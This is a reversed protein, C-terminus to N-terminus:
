ADEISVLKLPAVDHNFWAPGTVMFTASGDALASFTAAPAAESIEHWPFFSYGRVAGADTAMGFIAPMLTETPADDENVPRSEYRLFIPQSPQRVPYVLNWGPELDVDI